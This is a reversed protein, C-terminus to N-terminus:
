STVISAATLEAPGCRLRQQYRDMSLNSGLSLTGPARVLTSTSCSWRRHYWPASTGGHGDHGGDVFRAPDSSADLLGHRLLPTKGRLPLVSWGAEALEVAATAPNSPDPLATM